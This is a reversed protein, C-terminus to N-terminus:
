QQFSELREMDQQTVYLAKTKMTDQGRCVESTEEENHLCYVALLGDEVHSVVRTIQEMSNWADNNMM